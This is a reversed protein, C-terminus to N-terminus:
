FKDNIEVRIKLHRHIQTSTFYFEGDSQDELSSELFTDASTNTTKVREAQATIDAELLNHKQLLDEVELLHKGYDESMLGVKSIILFM